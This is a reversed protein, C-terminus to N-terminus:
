WRGDALDPLTDAPDLNFVPELEKLAREMNKRRYRRIVKSM